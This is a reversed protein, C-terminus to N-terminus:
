KPQEIRKIVRAASTRMLQDDSAAAVRLAPLAPEGINALAMQVYGNQPTSALHHVLGETAPAADPGFRILANVVSREHKKATSLVKGLRQAPAPSNPELTRVACAAALVLSTGEEHELVHKLMPLAAPKADASVKGLAVVAAHRLRPSEGEVVIRLLVPVADVARPGLEAVAAVAEGRVREPGHTWAAIEIL